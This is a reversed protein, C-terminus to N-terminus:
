GVALVHLGALYFVLQLFVRLVDLFRSDYLIAVHQASDDHGLLFPGPVQRIFLHFLRQLALYQLGVVEGHGVVLLEHAQHDITTLQRAGPQFLQLAVLKLVDKSYACGGVPLFFMYLFGLFWGKLFVVDELSIDLFLLLYLQVGGVM